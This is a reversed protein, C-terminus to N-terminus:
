PVVTSELVLLGHGFIQRSTALDRDGDGDFDGSVFAAIAFYDQQSASWNVAHTRPSGFQGQGYGRAFHLEDSTQSTAVWDLQGDGTLDELRVETLIPVADDIAYPETLGQSGGSLALLGDGWSSVIVEVTGDGELDARDLAAVSSPTARSQLAGMSGAGQNLRWSLQSPSQLSLYSIVGAVLDPSGDLDVDVLEAGSLSAGSAGPSGMLYTAPASFTGDGQGLVVLAQDQFSTHGILDLKGDLNVDGARADTFAGPLSVGGAIPAALTGSVAQGALVALQDSAGAGQVIAVDPTGDGTWDGALVDEAGSLALFPQFKDWGLLPDDRRFHVGDGAAAVLEDRGDGDVDLSALGSVTSTAEFHADTVETAPSADFGIGGAGLLVQTDGGVHAVLLEPDGDQNLDGCRLREASEGSPFLEAPQLLGALSAASAGLGRATRVGEGCVAADLDGDGDFDGVELDRAFAPAALSTLHVAAFSASGDGELAYVEETASLLGLADVFGDQDLDGLRISLATKGGPAPTHNLPGFSGDGLGPAVSWQAKNGFVADLQGDLDLDALEFNGTPTADTQIPTGIGGLGDGLLSLMKNFASSSGALLDANGDGNLDGAAIQELSDVPFGPTDLHLPDSFEGAGLGLLLDVGRLAGGPVLACALDLLGDGNFDVAEVNRTVGNMAPKRREGFTGDARGLSLQLESQEIGGTVLDLAGDGSLDAVELAYLPEQGLPREGAFPSLPMPAGFRIRWGPTSALLGPLAGDFQIAQLVVSKGCLSAALSSQELLGSAVGDADTAYGLTIWPAAPVVPTSLGPIALSGAAPSLLLAGPASAAANEVRLGFAEGVVPVGDLALRLAGASGPSGPGVYEVAGTTACTQSVTPLAFALLVPAAPALLRHLM